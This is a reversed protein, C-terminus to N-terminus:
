SQHHIIMILIIRISRNYERIRNIIMLVMKTMTNVAHKM